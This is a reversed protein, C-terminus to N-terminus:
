AARVSPANDSADDNAGLAALRRQLRRVEIAQRAEERMAAVQADAVERVAEPTVDDPSGLRTFLVTGLHDNTVRVGPGFTAGIRDLHEGSPVSQDALDLWVVRAPAGTIASIRKRAQDPARTIILALASGSKIACKIHM